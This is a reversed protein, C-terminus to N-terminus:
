LRVMRVSNSLLAPWVGLLSGKEMGMGRATEPVSTFLEQKKRWIEGTSLEPIERVLDLEKTCLM